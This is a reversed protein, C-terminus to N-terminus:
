GAALHDTCYTSAPRVAGRWARTADPHRPIDRARCAVISVPNAEVYPL